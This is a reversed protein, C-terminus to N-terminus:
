IKEDLDRLNSETLRNATIFRNVENDIYAQLKENNEGYKTMFKTILMGKLQERKQIEELKSRRSESMKSLHSPVESQKSHQSKASSNKM